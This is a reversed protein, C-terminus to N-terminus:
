VVRHNQYALVVGERWHLKHTYRHTRVIFWSMIGAPVFDLCYTVEVHVKGAKEDAITWAPLSDPPECPLLQPILSQTADEWQGAPNIQYCLEFREMLHLFIPYLTPDSYEHQEDSGWIRPLDDHILIGARARTTPDVLVQSIAKTVWNPKLIVMMRLIPDDRFYLIKGLDHLYGGLLSQTNADQVGNEVCLDRYTNVDIHHRPLALLAKELEIWSVPCLQGMVPLTAAHMSVADKLEPIGQGTKSSVQLVDV